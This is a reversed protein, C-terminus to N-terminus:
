PVLGMQEMRAKHAASLEAIGAATAAKLNLTGPGADDTAKILLLGLEPWKKLLDMGVSFAEGVVRRGWLSLRAGLRPDASVADRVLELGVRYDEDDDALISLVIRAQAPPLGRALLRILDRSVGHSVLSRLLGEWWNEPQTRLLFSDLAGDFPGMLQGPTMGWREQGLKVLAEEQEAIHVSRKLLRQADSLRPTGWVHQAVEVFLRLRLYAAFGVLERLAEDSPQPQRARDARPSPRAGPIAGTSTATPAQPASTPVAVPLATSTTM